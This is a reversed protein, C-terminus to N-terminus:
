YGGRTYVEPEPLEAQAPNMEQQPEDDLALLPNHPLGTDPNVGNDRQQLQSNVIQTLEDFFAATQQALSM